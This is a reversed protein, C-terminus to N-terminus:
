LWCLKGKLGASTHRKLIEKLSLTTHICVCVAIRRTVGCRASHLGTTPLHMVAANKLRIRLNKSCCNFIVQCNNEETDQTLEIGPQTSFGWITINYTFSVQYTM